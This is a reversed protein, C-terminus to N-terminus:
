SMCWMRSKIVYRVRFGGLFFFRAAGKGKGKGGTGGNRGGVFIGGGVVM